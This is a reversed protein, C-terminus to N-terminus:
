YICHWVYCDCIYTPGNAVFMYPRVRQSGLEDTKFVMTGHEPVGAMIHHLYWVEGDCLVGLYFGDNVKDVHTPM